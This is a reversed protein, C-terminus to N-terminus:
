MLDWWSTGRQRMFYYYKRGASILIKDEDPRVQTELQNHRSVFYIHHPLLLHQSVFGVLFIIIEHPFVPPTGIDLAACPMVIVDGEEESIDGLQHDVM